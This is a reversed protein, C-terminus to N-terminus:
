KKKNKYMKYLKHAALAGGAVAATKFGTDAMNNGSQIDSDLSSTGKNVLQDVIGMPSHKASEASLARMTGLATTGLGGAIVAGGAVKEGTSLKTSDEKKAEFLCRVISIM